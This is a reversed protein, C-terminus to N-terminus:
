HGKITRTVTLFVEDSEIKFKKFNPIRLFFSTSEFPLIQVSEEHPPGSVNFVPNLLNSLSIRCPSPNEADNVPPEESKQEIHMKPPIYLEDFYHRIINEQTPFM